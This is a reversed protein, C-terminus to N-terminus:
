QNFEIPLSFSYLILVFIDNAVQITGHTILINGVCNEYHKPECFLHTPLGEYDDLAFLM